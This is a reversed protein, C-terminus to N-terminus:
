NAGHGPNQPLSRPQSERAPRGILRTPKGKMSDFLDRQMAKQDIQRIIRVADPADSKTWAYRADPGAVTV